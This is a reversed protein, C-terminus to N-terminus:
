METSRCMSLMGEREGGTVFGMKQFVHIARSNHTKCTLAIATRKADAWNTVHALLRTGVGSDRYGSRVGIGLQGFGVEGIRFLRCWGIIRGDMKALLLLTNEDDMGLLARSWEPTPCFCKTEMWENEKCVSDILAILGERDSPTYPKIEEM